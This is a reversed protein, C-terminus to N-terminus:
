NAAAAAPAATQTAPTQQAADAAPAQAPAQTPAAAAPAQTAAPAAGTGVEVEEPVMKYSSKGLSETRALTGNEYVTKTSEVVYGTKGKSM